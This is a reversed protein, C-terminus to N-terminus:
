WPQGQDSDWSALGRPFSPLTSGTPHPGRGEARGQASIDAPPDPSWGPLPSPPDRWPGPGAETTAAELRLTRATGSSLKSEAGEGQLILSVDLVAPEQQSM